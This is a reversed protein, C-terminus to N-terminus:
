LNKKQYVQQKGKSHDEPTLSHKKKSLTGGNTVQAHLDEITYSSWFSGWIDETEEQQPEEDDIWAKIKVFDSM